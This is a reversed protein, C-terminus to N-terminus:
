KVAMVAVRIAPLQSGAPPTELYSLRLGDASWRPRSGSEAIRESWGDRRMTGVWVGGDRDTWALLDTHPHPAPDRAHARLEVVPAGPGACRVLHTGGSWWPTGAPATAEVVTAIVEGRRTWAVQTANGLKDTQGRAWRVYMVGPDTRGTWFDTDFAPTDRWCLGPGDPQPEPDFGEGFESVKGQADIFVILKGDQAV